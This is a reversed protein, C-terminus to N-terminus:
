ILNIVSISCEIYLILSKNSMSREIQILISITQDKIDMPDLRKDLLTTRSFEIQSRCIGSLHCAYITVPCASRPHTLHHPHSIIHPFLDAVFFTLKMNLANCLTQSQDCLHHYELSTSVPCM